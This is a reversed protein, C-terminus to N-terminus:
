RAIAGELISPSIQVLGSVPSYYEVVLFLAGACAVASLITNVIATSTRPLVLGLGLYVIVLWSLLVVLLAPQVGSSGVLRVRYGALEMDAVLAAAQQQLAAHRADGRPLEQVAEALQGVASMGPGDGPHNTAAGGDSWVSAVTEAVGERLLRRAHATEPGLRALVADTASIDAGIETIDAEVTAYYQQASSIVLGLVLATLTVVVGVARVVAEQSESSRHHDPLRARLALGIAMAGAMLALFMLNLLLVEM